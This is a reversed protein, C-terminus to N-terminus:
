DTRVLTYSASQRQKREDHFNNQVTADMRTDNVAIRVFRRASYTTYTASFRGNRGRIGPTWGWSCDRPACKTLTRTRHVLRNGECRTEVQIQSIDGPKANRNQWIGTEASYCSNFELVDPREYLVALTTGGIAAVVFAIATIGVASSKFSSGISM